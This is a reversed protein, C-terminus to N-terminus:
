NFIKQAKKIDIKNLYFAKGAIIGEILPNNLSSLNKLDNNNSLGGGFIIPKESLKLCGKIKNFNLGSLMGDRSVDTFVFGKIKSRNFKKFIQELNYGSEKTWGQIMVKGNYDDISIYLKNPFKNAIEILNNQKKIAFSGVILFDIGNNNWFLIDKETRIGGGLEIEISTSQRIKLIISRNNDKKNFAADLDVVHIRECGEKEFFKAQKVPDDNFVISSEEKGKSLRVCKGNKLDIAPILKM